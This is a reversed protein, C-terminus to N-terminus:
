EKEIFAKYAGTNMNFAAGSNVNAIRNSLQLQTKNGSVPIYGTAIEPPDILKKERLIHYQYMGTILTTLTEVRAEFEKFAQAQGERYAINYMNSMLKTEDENRAVLLPDDAPGAYIMDDESVIFTQWNLQSSVFRAPALIEYKVEAHSYNQGTPNVQLMDEGSMIIPPQLMSNEANDSSVHSYLHAVQFAQDNFEKLSISTVRLEKFKEMRGAALGKAFAHEKLATIRVSETKYEDSKSDSAYAMQATTSVALALALIHIIKKLRM